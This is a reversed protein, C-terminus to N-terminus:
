AQQGATKKEAERQALAGELIVVIQANMSRREAKAIEAIQDRMGPPLRIMFKDLTRSEM